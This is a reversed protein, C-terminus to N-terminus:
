DCRVLRAVEEPPLPPHCMDLNIKELIAHIGREALGMQRLYAALDALTMGREGCTEM